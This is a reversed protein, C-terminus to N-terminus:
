KNKQWLTNWLDRTRHYYIQNMLYSKKMLIKIIHNCFTKNQKKTCHYDSVNISHKNQPVWWELFMGLFVSLSTEEYKKVAQIYRDQFKQYSHLLSVFLWKRNNKIFIRCSQSHVIIYNTRWIFTSSLLWKQIRRVVINM